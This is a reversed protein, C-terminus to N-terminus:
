GKGGSNFSDCFYSDILSELLINKDTYISRFIDIKSPEAKLAENLHFSATELNHILALNAALRFNIEASDSLNEYAQILIDIKKIMSKKGCFSESYDIWIQPDSNELELSIKFAEEADEIFGLKQNILASLHWYEPDNQEIKIAKKIAYYSDPYKKENYLIFAQGYYAESHDFDFVIAQEFNKLAEKNNDLKSYAEGLYYYADADSPEKEIYFRLSELGKEYEQNFIQCIGLHFYSFSIKSDIAIAFEIADISEEYRELKCYVGSLNSWALRSYPDILLYQKYYKISEEDLDLKECCFAIEFLAISNEPDIQLAQKFYKIAFEYQGIHELTTGANILIEETEDNDEVIAKEFQMLAKSIEGVSCLAVGLLFSAYSNFHEIKVIEKLIKIAQYHLGDRILVQAKKQLLSFAKPHIDLAYAIANKAQKLENKNLFHDIIHEFEFIDFYFRSKKEVMDTYRNIVAGEEYDFLDSKETMSIYFISHVFM